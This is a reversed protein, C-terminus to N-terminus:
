ESATAVVARHYGVPLPPLPILSQRVQTAGVRYGNSVIADKSVEIPLSEGGDLEIRAARIKDCHIRVPLTTQQDTWAVLCPPALETALEDRRARLSQEADQTGDLEAGLARLVAVLTEPAAHHEKGHIDRYSLQVGYLRALARLSEHM